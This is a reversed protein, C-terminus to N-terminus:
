DRNFRNTLRGFLLTLIGLVIMALTSPEALGDVLIHEQIVEAKVETVLGTLLLSLVLTKSKLYM